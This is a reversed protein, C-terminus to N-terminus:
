TSTTKSWHILVSETRAPSDTFAPPEGTAPVTVATPWTGEGFPTARARAKRNAGVAGNPEPCCSVTVTGAATTSWPFTGSPVSATRVSVAGVRGSSWGAQLVTFVLTDGVPLTLLPVFTVTVTVATGPEVISSRASVAGLRISQSRATSEPCASLLRGQFTTAVPLTPAFPFTVNV